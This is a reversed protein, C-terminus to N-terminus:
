YKVDLLYAAYFKKIFEKVNIGENSEKKTLNLLLELENDSLNLQMEKLQSILENSYICGNKELGAFADALTKGQRRLYDGIKRYTRREWDITHSEGISEGVEESVADFMAMLKQTDLLEKHEGLKFSSNIITKEDESLYMKFSSLVKYFLKKEIGSKGKIEDIVKDYKLIEENFIGLDRYIERQIKKIIPKAQKLSYSGETNQNMEGEILTVIDKTLIRGNGITSFLNALVRADNLEIGFNENRLLSILEANSIRGTGNIDFLLYIQTISYNGKELIDGIKKLIRNAKTNQVSRFKKSRGEIQGTGMQTAHALGLLFEKRSVTNTKKKDMSNFLAAIDDKSLGLQMGEIGQIFDIKSIYLGKRRSLIEFAKLPDISNKKLTKVLAQLCIIVGPDTLGIILIFIVQTYKVLM